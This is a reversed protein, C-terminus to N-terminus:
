RVLVHNGEKRRQIAMAVMRDCLQDFEIGAAAAAKPFLSTETMGPLTNLELCFPRGDDRLRWDIRAYDRCGLLEFAQESLRCVRETITGDLPAPCFYETAGKTYKNQYDYFGDKPRIEVIPLATNDLIGVTLERGAIFEEVLAKDGFQFTDDLAKDLRDFREVVHVGVSSGQATPKVVIPYELLLRRTRGKLLIEYAPTPINGELLAQKTLLKDFCVRSAEVGCGTYAVGRQELIAQVQGDEGFTGHLAIFAVDTGSPLAFDDSKVDVETVTHGVRRLAASCAEGSRLSVAREASPGGMLVAVKRPKLEDNM